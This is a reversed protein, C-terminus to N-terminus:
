VVLGSPSPMPKDILREIMSRCPPRSHAVAFGSCPAVNWKAKGPIFHVHLVGSYEHHVVVLGHPARQAPKELGHTQRHLHKGASLREELPWPGVSGTTQEEINLKGSQAAEIELGLECA